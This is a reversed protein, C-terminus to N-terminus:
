RVSDVQITVLRRRAWRLRAANQEDSAERVLRVHHRDFEEHIFDQGRQRIHHEVDDRSGIVLAERNGRVQVPGADFEFTLLDKLNSPAVIVTVLYGQMSGDAANVDYSTKWPTRWLEHGDKIDLGAKNTSM